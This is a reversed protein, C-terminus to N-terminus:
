GRPVFRLPMRDVMLRPWATRSIEGAVAFNATRALLEETVVRMDMRALSAGVCQHIGRGFAFHRKDARDIDFREPDPWRAPDVNAAGWHLLLYDGRKVPQGQVESDALCRRAMAQQPTHLRLSEEIADPIRSPDARLLAQLPQDRALQLIFSSLAGSTTHHGGLMLSMFLGIVAMDDLPKGDIEATAIGSVVDDGPNARREAVLKHMYPMFAGLMAMPIPEENSKLLGSANQRDMDTAWEWHFRWDEDPVAMLKCLLRIPFPFAIEASFDAEGKAIMADIMGIAIPRVGAELERIRSPAFYPNLLRRIAGHEPPDAQLPLVRAGSIATHSSFVSPNTAVAQVGEHSFVGWFGDGSDKEIRAVPSRTLVEEYASLTTDTRDAELDKWVTRYDWEVM